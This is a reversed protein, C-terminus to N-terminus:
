YSVVTTADTLTFEYKSDSFNKVYSAQPLNVIPTYSNNLYNKIEQFIFNGYLDFFYEYNGLTSIIKDLLTVVTDGANLTLEEPYTFDTEMYGIDQGAVYKRGTTGYQSPAADSICM